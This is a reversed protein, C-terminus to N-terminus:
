KVETQLLKRSLIKLVKKVRGCQLEGVPTIKEFDISEKLFDKVKNPVPLNIRRGLYDEGPIRVNHRLADNAGSGKKCDNAIDTMNRPTLSKELLAYKTIESLLDPVQGHKISTHAYIIVPLNCKAIEDIAAKYYDLINKIGFEANQFFLEPAVPFIPIELVGIRKGKIKPFSPLSLYDYAFDSSYEYGEDQLAQMLGINWKGMPAAFGKTEIGIGEFFVKAKKINYRNSKYDNYVHHYYGHSQIDIGLNRSKIIEDKSEEFSSACFFITLCAKYKNFLPKYRGFTEKNYEDADIRLSFINHLANSTAEGLSEITPAQAVREVVRMGRFGFEKICVGRENQYRYM